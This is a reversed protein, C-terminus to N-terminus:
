AARAFPPRNRSRSPTDGEPGPEGHARRAARRERLVERRLRFREAERILQAARIQQLEYAFLMAHGGSLETRPM